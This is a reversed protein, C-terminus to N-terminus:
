ENRYDSSAPKPGTSGATTRVSPLPGPKRPRGGHPGGSRRRGRAGVAGGAGCSGRCWRPKGAPPARFREGARVRRHKRAPGRPLGAAGCPPGCRARVSRSSTPPESRVRRRTGRVFGNRALHLARMPKRPTPRVQRAGIVPHRRNRGRVDRRTERVRGDNARPLRRRGGRGAATRRAGQISRIVPGFAASVRHRPPADPLERIVGPLRKGRTGKGVLVAYQVYELGCGRNRLLSYMRYFTHLYTAGSIVVNKLSM